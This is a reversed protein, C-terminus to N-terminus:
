QIFLLISNIVIEQQLSSGLNSKGDGSQNGYNGFQAHNGGLILSAYTRNPIKGYTSISDIPLSPPLL